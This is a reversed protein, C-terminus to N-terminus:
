HKIVYGLVNAPAIIMPAYPHPPSKPMGFVGFLPLGDAVTARILNLADHEDDAEIEATFYGGIMPIGVTYTQEKM